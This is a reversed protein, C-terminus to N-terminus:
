VLSHFSHSNIVLYVGVMLKERNEKQLSSNSKPNLFILSTNNATCSVDKASGKHVPACSSKPCFPHCAGYGLRRASFLAGGKIYPLM